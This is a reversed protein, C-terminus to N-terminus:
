VTNEKKGLYRVFAFYMTMLFYDIKVVILKKKIYGSM